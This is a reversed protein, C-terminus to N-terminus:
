EGDALIQQLRVSNINRGCLLAVIPREDPNPVLNHLLAAVSVAAAGEVILHHEHVLWRIATAIQAESVTLMGDTLQQVLPFTISGAELNGALGDALTPHDPAPVIQGAALAAHMAASAAAQVGIIQIQPNIAKAWLAIGSILGGGGVGVLIIPPKPHDPLQELIECGLTGQGAIVDPHNYPSIFTYGESRALRLAKAEAADYGNGHLLLRVPYRQLAAIKAPSADAPVVLTVNAALAAAAHAMGLAHNGASCALLPTGPAVQRLANTAGRLKFSGTVQACELKLYTPAGVAASLPHSFELPTPQVIGAIRRRAALIAAPNMPISEKTYYSSRTNRNAVVAGDAM